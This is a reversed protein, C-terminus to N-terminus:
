GEVERPTPLRHQLYVLAAVLAFYLIVSLAVSWHRVVVLHDDTVLVLHGLLTPTGEVAAPKVPSEIPKSFVIRKGTDLQIWAIKSDVLGVDTVRAVGGSAYPALLSLGVAVGLLAVLTISLRYARPLMIRRSVMYAIILAVLCDVITKSAFVWLVEPRGLFGATASPTPHLSVGAIRPALFSIPVMSYAAIAYAGGIRAARDPDAISARVGFYVLYALFLLLVATERPDWNWPTGWSEAAWASGTILTLAAYALGTLAFGYVYRDYGIRDRVVLLIASIFAATFLMYSAWAVPIHVYINLYATPSGLQVRSPFPAHYVSYYTLLVDVALLALLLIPLRTVTELVEGELGSRAGVLSPLAFTTEAM